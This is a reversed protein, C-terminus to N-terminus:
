ALSAAGALALTLWGSKNILAFFIVSIAVTQILIAAAFWAIPVPRYSADPVYWDPLATDTRAIRRDGAMIDGGTPDTLEPESEPEPM